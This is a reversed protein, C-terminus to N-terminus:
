SVIACIGIMKEQGVGKGLHVIGEWLRVTTAKKVMYDPGVASQVLCPM